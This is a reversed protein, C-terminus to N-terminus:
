ENRTRIPIISVPSGSFGIRYVTKITALRIFTNAPLVHCEDFITLIYSKGKIKHFAHYAEVDIESWIEPKLYGRIREIWQEKLTNTPVVVLKPGKVLSLLYLGFFSKGSGFPWYVGIAGTEMFRKLAEEQYERLRIEEKLMPKPYLHKKDVPKPTFPLIGDKVLEAILQYEYGKKIKFGKDGVRRVLYKRYRRWVEESEGSELTLM